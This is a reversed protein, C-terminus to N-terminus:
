HTFKRKLGRERGVRPIVNKHKPHKNETTIESIESIRVGEEVSQTRFGEM